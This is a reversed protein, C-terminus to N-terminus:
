KWGEVKFFVKENYTYEAWMTIKVMNEWVKNRDCYIEYGFKERFKRNRSSIVYDGFNEFKYINVTM